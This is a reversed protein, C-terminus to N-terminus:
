PSVQTEVTQKDLPTPASVHIPVQKPPVGAHFKDLWSQNLSGGLPMLIYSSPFKEAMWSRAAKLDPIYFPNFNDAMEVVYAEREITGYTSKLDKRLELEVLNSLLEGQITFREFGQSYHSIEHGFLQLGFGSPTPGSIVQPDSELQLMSGYVTNGWSNPWPPAFKIVLGSLNPMSTYPINGCATSRLYDIRKDYVHFFDVIAQGTEGSNSLETLANEVWEKCDKHGTCTWMGTPDTNITPNAYAYLWLNYSQPQSQEGKWTDQSVFRGQTPSYYRARLNVLGMGDTWEGTYGYSTEAMGTSEGYPSYSAVNVIDGNADVLKRVSGLADPIFYL